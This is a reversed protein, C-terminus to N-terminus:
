ISGFQDIPGSAKSVTTGGTGTGGITTSALDSGSGGCALPMIVVLFFLIISYLSSREPLNQKM